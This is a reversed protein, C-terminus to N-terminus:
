RTRVVLEAHEDIGIIHFFAAVLHPVDDFRVTGGAQQRAMAWTLLSGAASFDVRVLQACSVAVRGGAPLPRALAALTDPADGRLEGCLAL